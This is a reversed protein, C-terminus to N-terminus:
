GALLTAQQRASTTHSGVTRPGIGLAALCRVTAPAAFPGFEQHGGARAAALEGLLLELSAADDVDYWAPLEVVELGHARARARTQEAVQETSWAVDQFLCAHPAKMGILYYGGDRAPGLM